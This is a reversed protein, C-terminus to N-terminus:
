LDAHCKLGCLSRANRVAATVSKEVVRAALLGVVTLDAEVRGTAMAFITDGDFMSHAPRITRAFGNQAMSAVKSAGAKTLAANTAVAGITTNKSFFDM